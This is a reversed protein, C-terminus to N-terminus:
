IVRITGKIHGKNISFFIVKVIGLSNQSDSLAVPWQNQYSAM